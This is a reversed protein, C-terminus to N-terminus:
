PRNTIERPQVGGRKMTYNYTLTSLVMHLIYKKSCNVCNPQLRNMAGLRISESVGDDSNM